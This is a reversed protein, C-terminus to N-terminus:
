TKKTRLIDSINSLVEFSNFVLVPRNLARIVIVYNVTIEIGYKM